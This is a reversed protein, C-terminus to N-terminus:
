MGRPAEPLPMWHTPKKVVRKAEECALWGYTETWIVLEPLSAYEKDFVLIHINKPATEIPQWQSGSTAGEVARHIEATIERLQEHAKEMNLELDFHLVHKKPNETM